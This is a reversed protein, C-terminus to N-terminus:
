MVYLKESLWVERLSVLFYGGNLQRYQSFRREIPDNQLRATSIYKYDQDVFLEKILLIQSRLTRIMATMTHKSFRFPTSGNQLWKELWDAYNQLFNLKKDHLTVANALSDPHFQQKSNVIKWSCSILTLFSAVDKRPFYSKFAAITTDHFVALALIVNQENNAPYLTEYALKPTKRLNGKLKSDEVYVDKFDRWSIYSPESNVVADNISFSFSPFCTKSEKAFQKSHKEIFACQWFIVINQM